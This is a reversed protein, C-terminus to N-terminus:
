IVLMSLQFNIVDIGHKRMNKVTNKKWSWIIVPPILLLFLGSLHLIPLWIREESTHVPENASTNNCLQEFKVELADALIQLSYSRPSVKGQEIRQITRASIGTKAALEEQTLGKKLRIERILKGASM